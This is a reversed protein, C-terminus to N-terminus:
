DGQGAQPKLADPTTPAPQPKPLPPKNVRHQKMEAYISQALSSKEFGIVKAGKVGFFQELEGSTYVEVVPYDAFEALIEARSAASLDTTLLVFHLRRKSRGLIERGVLLKRSRLVFPFLREVPKLPGPESKM